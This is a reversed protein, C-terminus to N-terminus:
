DACAYASVALTPRGAKSPITSGRQSGEQAVRLVTSVGCGLQRAIKKWGLGQSRLAAIRRADVIKRPRGLRKGKARANRLGAKVREQILAREFEAMSGIIQFMLRGTPTTLDLNDTLSVFSVGVAELDALANVLHRLSRGFRDLKWVLIVDFKRRMADAMMRDLQPRHDKAGSVGSDVYEQTVAWGRAEAFQRLERLQLNVDQGHTTSVRAYLAAKM